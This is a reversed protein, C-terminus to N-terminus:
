RCPCACSCSVCKLVCAHIAFVLCNLEAYCVRQTFNKMPPPVSCSGCVSCYAPVRQVTCSYLLAGGSVSNSQCWGWSVQAMVERDGTFLGEMIRKRRYATALLAFPVQTNCGPSRNDSERFGMLPQSYLTLGVQPHRGPREAPIIGTSPAAAQYKRVDTVMKAWLLLSVDAQTLVPTGCHRWCVPVATCATCVTARAGHRVKVLRDKGCDGRQTELLSIHQVSLEPPLPGVQNGGAQEERKHALKALTTTMIEVFEPYECEGPLVDAFVCYLRQNGQQYTHQMWLALDIDIRQALLVGAMHYFTRGVQGTQQRSGVAVAIGPVGARGVRSRTWAARQLGDCLQHTSSM